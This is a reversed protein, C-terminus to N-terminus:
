VDQGNYAGAPREAKEVLTRVPNGELDYVYLSVFSTAPLYYVLRAPSYGAVFPNPYAYLRFDDDAHAVGAACALIVLTLLTKLVANKRV